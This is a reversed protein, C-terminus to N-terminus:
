DEYTDIDKQYGLKAIERVLDQPAPPLGNKMQVQNFWLGKKILVNSQKIFFEKEQRNEIPNLKDDTVTFRWQIHSVAEIVMFTISHPFGQELVSLVM